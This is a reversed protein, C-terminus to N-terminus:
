KVDKKLCKLTSPCDKKCAEDSEFTADICKFKCAMDKNPATAGIKVLVGKCKISTLQSEDFLCNKTNEKLCDGGIFTGPDVEKKVAGTDPKAEQPTISIQSISVIGKKWSLRIEGSKVAFNPKDHIIEDPIGLPPTTIEVENIMFDMPVKEKITNKNNKNDVLKLMVKIDYTGNPVQIFWDTGEVMEAATGQIIKNKDTENTLTDLASM